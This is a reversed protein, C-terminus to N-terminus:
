DPRKNAPDLHGCFLPDIPLRRNIFRLRTFTERATPNTIPTLSTALAAAEEEATRDVARWAGAAEL